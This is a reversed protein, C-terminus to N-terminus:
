STIHAMFVEVFESDSSFRCSDRLLRPPLGTEGLFKIL